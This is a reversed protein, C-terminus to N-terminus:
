VGLLRVVEARITEHHGAWAIWTTAAWEAVAREYAALGAAARVDVITRAAPDTPPELWPFSTRSGLFMAMLATTREDPQAAELTLCLGILHVWVSRSSRRGPVGPHQVAYTNVTLPQMAIRGRELYEAAQLEGYLAWCGPSAGIYEHGPTDVVPVVARCGPCTESVTM